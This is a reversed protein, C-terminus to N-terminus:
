SSIDHIGIDPNVIIAIFNYYLFFLSCITRFFIKQNILDESLAFQKKLKEYM